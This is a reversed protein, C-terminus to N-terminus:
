RLSFLSFFPYLLFSLFFTHFFSHAFSVEPSNDTRALEFMDDLSSTTEEEGKDDSLKLLAVAPNTAMDLLLARLYSYFQGTETTSDPIQGLIIFDDIPVEQGSTIAKCIEICKQYNDLSDEAKESLLNHIADKITGKEKNWLHLLAHSWLRSLMEVLATKGVGTEGKIIVPVSCEYREHINLMKITYDLTLVYNSDDIASLCKGKELPLGLARALYQDLIKRDQNNSCINSTINSVLYMSFLIGIIAKHHHIVNVSSKRM